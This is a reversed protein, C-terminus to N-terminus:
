NVLSIMRPLCSLINITVKDYLRFLQQLVQDTSPLELRMAFEKYSIQGGENTIIHPSQTLIKEEINTQTLSFFLNTCELWNIFIKRAM